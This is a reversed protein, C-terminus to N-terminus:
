LVYSVSAFAQEPKHHCALSLPIHPILFLILTDNQFQGSQKPSAKVIETWKKFYVQKKHESALYMEIYTKM